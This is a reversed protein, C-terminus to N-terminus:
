LGQADGFQQRFHDDLFPPVEHYQALLGDVVVRVLRALHQRSQQPPALPRLRRLNLKVLAVPHSHRPLHIAPHLCHPERQRPDDRRIQPQILWPIRTQRIDHLRLLLLQLFLRQTIIPHILPPPQLSDLDLTHAQRKKVGKSESTTM